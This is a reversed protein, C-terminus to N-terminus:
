NVNWLHINWQGYWGCLTHGHKMRHQRNSVSKQQSTADCISLDMSLTQKKHKTWIKKSEPWKKEKQVVVLWFSDAYFSFASFKAGNWLFTWMNQGRVNLFMFAIDHRANISKWYVCVRVSGSMSVWISTTISYYISKGINPIFDIAGFANLNSKRSSKHLSRWVVLLITTTWRRRWNMKCAIHAKKWREERKKQKDNSFVDNM